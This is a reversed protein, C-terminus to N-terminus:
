SKKNKIEKYIRVGNYTITTLTALITLNTLLADGTIFGLLCVANLKVSVWDIANFYIQKM